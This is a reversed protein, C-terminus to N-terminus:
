KRVFLRIEQVGKRIEELWVVSSALIVVYVWDSISIPHIDLIKSLFQTNFATVTLGISILWGIIFVPSVRFGYKFISQEGARINLVNFWQMVILVLLAMSQSYQISVDRLQAQIFVFLTVFTMVLGLYVIRKWERYDLINKSHKSGHVYGREFAFGIVLFTDTVLNLWLIGIASLPIPLAITVAFVVVFMEAFNTSLLFLITKQINAFINKGEEIGYVISGFKNDLLIIDSAEKASDSSQTGMAIGIDARVLALADNIGDGTMAVTKGAEKLLELIKLKQTPTVRAFVNKQLILNKLQIDTLHGMDDGTLVSHTDAKIGIKQAIQLAIEKHDGTIIIIKIGRDYVDKVSVHVDSRISDNIAFLGKCVTKEGESICTALVRYGGASYEKLKAHFLATSKDDIKLDLGEVRVHTCKAFIVEPAGTFIEVEKKKHAYIASHYMNKNTFSFNKKFSYESLLLEKTTASKEGLVLLAVETPDGAELMWEKKEDSYGYSGASSLVASKILLRADPFADLTATKEQFVFTGKPEYGDGTVYLEQNNFTFIKEVKMQNHTITGTKDLALTDIQGLVDLSQMKRVLVNKDGMRKFGYALVLTLMVPLSEPIASVFLAVAVKSIGIWSQMQVLGVVLVFVTLVLVFLFIGFSLRRISKYLPLQTDMTSIKQVIMGLETQNGIHIVLVHAQGALVFSGSFVGHANDIVSKSSYEVAEIKVVARSEGTLISEDVRFNESSIVIGDASIKDGASLVMVDGPVIESSELRINRGNRIVVSYHPIIKTLSEFISDSRYRQTTEIISNVIIVTLVVYFDILEGIFFLIAAASFLIISFFSGLQILLIHFFGERKKSTVVNLGFKKKNRIVQENSLGLPSSSYLQFYHELKM